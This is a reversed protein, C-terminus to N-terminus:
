VGHCLTHNYSVKTLHGAAVAIFNLWNVDEEFNGVKLMETLANEQLCMGNWKEYLM